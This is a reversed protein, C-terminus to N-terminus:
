KEGVILVTLNGELPEILDDSHLWYQIDYASAGTRPFWAQIRDMHWSEQHRLKPHFYAIKSRVDPDYLPGKPRSTLPPDVILPVAFNALPPIFLNDPFPKPEWPAKPLSPRTPEWPFDDIDKIGVVCSPVPFYLAVDVNSAPAYGGNSLVLQIECELGQERLEKYILFKKLKELYYDISQRFEEILHPQTDSPAKAVVEELLVREDAISEEIFIISHRWDNPGLTEQVRFIAEIKEDAWFGFELHPIRKEYRALKRKLEQIEKKEPSSQDLVELANPPEKSDIGFNRAKLRLGVDRALLCIQRNQHNRQFEIIKALIRDDNINADLSLNGWDVNPEQTLVIIWVAKRILAPSCPEVSLAVQEIKELLMRARKQRWSNSSDDKFKDLEGTVMPVIVLCISEVELLSPWDVEDFTTYHLLISTDLFCYLTNENM